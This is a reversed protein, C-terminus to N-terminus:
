RAHEAEEADLTERDDVGELNLELGTQVDERTFGARALRNQDLRDSQQEAAARRAVQDAGALLRGRDFGDEFAVPFLQEDPALDRSLAAAPREHVAGQRR